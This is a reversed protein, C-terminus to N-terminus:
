SQTPCMSSATGFRFFEGHKLVRFAEKFALEVDVVHEIVSRAHIVDASADELPISEATGEVLRIEKGYRRALDQAIARASAFPEVGVARYGLKACSIVFMGQAAGLDVITAGNEVNAIRKLRPIVTQAQSAYDDRLGLVNELSRKESAISKPAM